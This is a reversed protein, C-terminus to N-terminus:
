NEAPYYWVRRILGQRVEYVALSSQGGVIQERFSVFVPGEIVDVITSRVAPRSAFYSVMDARLQEAGRTSLSAVGEDDFYYLEFDSTVLAAMADPDHQNFADMLTQAATLASLEAEKAGAAQQVPRRAIARARLMISEFRLTEWGETGEAFGDWAFPRGENEYVVSAGLVFQDVPWFGTWVQHLLVRSGVSPTPPMDRPLLSCTLRGAIEVYRAPYPAYVVREADLGDSRLWEDVEITLLDHPLDLYLGGEVAVVTGTAILGSGRLGDWLNRQVTHLISDQVDLFDFSLCDIRESRDRIESPVNELFWDLRTRDDLSVNERPGAAFAATLSDGGLWIGFGNSDHIEDSRSAQGAAAAALSALAILVAKNQM